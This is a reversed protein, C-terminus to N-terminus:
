SGFFEQAKRIGEVLRDVEERTNYLYFSARATGNLGFRQHLPQACHLGARIAIGELDLV